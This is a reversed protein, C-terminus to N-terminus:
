DGLQERGLVRCLGIWRLLRPAIGRGGYGIAVM